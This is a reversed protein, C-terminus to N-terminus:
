TAISPSRDSPAKGFHRGWEANSMDKTTMRSAEGILDALVQSRSQGRHQALRDLAVSSCLDISISRKIHFPKSM